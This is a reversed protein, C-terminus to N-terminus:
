IDRASQAREQEERRVHDTSILVRVTRSIEDSDYGRRALFAYLRRRQVTTDLRELSKMKKRAVRELTGQEDVEEESFVATIAADAVDRAVGRRALEQQVRRRSLGSGVAKSRAFQKAFSADDLFSARILREIAVDVFESPEGKRILLRRLEAGARARLAIMNLARDYTAVIGAERALAASVREDVVAGVSLQLREIAELSLTAAIAGDVLVDFRGNRRPTATIATVLM